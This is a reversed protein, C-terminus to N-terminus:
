LFMLQYFVHDFTKACEIQADSLVNTQTHDIETM